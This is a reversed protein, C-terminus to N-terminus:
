EALQAVAYGKPPLPMRLGWWCAGPLCVGGRRDRGGEQMARALTLGLQLSSSREPLAAFSPTPPGLIRYLSPTRPHMGGSAYLWELCSM